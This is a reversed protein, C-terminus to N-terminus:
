KKVYYPDENIQIHKASDLDDIKSYFEEPNSLIKIIKISSLIGSDNPIFQFEKGGEAFSIMKEIFINSIVKCEIAYKM